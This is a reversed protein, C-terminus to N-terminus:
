SFDRVCMITFHDYFIINTFSFHLKIKITHFNDVQSCRKPITTVTTNSLFALLPATTVVEQDIAILFGYIALFHGDMKDHNFWGFLKKVCVVFRV